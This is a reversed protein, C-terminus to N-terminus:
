TSLSTSLFLLTYLSTSLSSYSTQIILLRALFLNFSWLCLPRPFICSSPDIPTFVFYFYKWKTCNSSHFLYLIVLCICHGLWSFDALSEDASMQVATSVCYVCPHFLWPPPSLRWGYLCPHMPSGQHSLRYFTQRCHPLGANSGQTPFIRQYPTLSHELKIRKCTSSDLKGLM